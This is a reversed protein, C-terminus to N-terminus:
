KLLKLFAEPQEIEVELDQCVEQEPTELLKPRNNEIIQAEDDQVPNELLEPVQVSNSPAEKFLESEFAKTLFANAAPILSIQSNVAVEQAIQTFAQLLNFATREKHEPHRPTRWEQTIQKVINPGIVGEMMSQLILWDGVNTPCEINKLHRVNTLLAEMEERFFIYMAELLSSVPVGAKNRMGFNYGDAIDVQLGNDCVLVKCSCNTRLSLKGLNSHQVLMGVGINEAKFGNYTHLTQIRDEQAQWVDPADIGFWLKIEHTKDSLAIRTENISWGDDFLLQQAQDFLDAHHIPAWNTSRQPKGKPWREQESPLVYDRLEERTVFETGRSKKQSFM